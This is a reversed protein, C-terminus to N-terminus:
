PKRLLRLLVANTRDAVTQVIAGTQQVVPAVHAALRDTVGDLRRGLSDTTAGVAHTTDGLAKGIPRRVPQRGASQDGPVPVLGDAAVGGSGRNESSASLAGDARGRAQPAAANARPAAAPAGTRLRTTRNGHLILPKDGPHAASLSLVLAASSTSPLPDESTLSYAIIGSAVTFTLVVSALVVGAVGLGSLVTHQPRRFLPMSRYGHQKM